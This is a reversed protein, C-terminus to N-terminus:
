TEINLCCERDSTFSSKSKIRSSATCPNHGLFDGSPKDMYWADWYSQNHDFVSLDARAWNEQTLSEFNPVARVALNDTIPIVCKSDVKHGLWTQFGVASAVEIAQVHLFSADTRPVKAGSATTQYVKHLWGYGIRDPRVINKRNDQVGTRFRLHRLFGKEKIEPPFQQEKEFCYKETGLELHSVDAFEERRVFDVM